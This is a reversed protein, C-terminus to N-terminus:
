SHKKEVAPILKNDIFWKIVRDYEKTNEIYDSYITKCLDRARYLQNKDVSSFINIGLLNNTIQDINFSSHSISKTRLDFEVIDNYKEFCQIFLEMEGGYIDPFKDWDMESAVRWKIIQVGSQIDYPHVLHKPPYLYTLCLSNFFLEIICREHSSLEETPLNISDRRGLMYSPSGKKFKSVMQEIDEIFYSDDADLLLLAEVQDSLSDHIYSIGRKIAGWKGIPKSIHITHLNSNNNFQAHIKGLISPHSQLVMITSTNLCFLLDSITTVLQLFDSEMESRIYAPVIAITKM